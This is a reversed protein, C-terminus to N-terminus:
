RVIVCFGTPLVTGTLVQNGDETSEIALQLKHNHGYRSNTLAPIGEIVHAKVLTVKTGKPLKLIPETEVDLRADKAFLLPGAIVAEPGVQLLANAAVTLTPATNAECTDAADGNIQGNLVLEGESVTVSGAANFQGNFTWTGLGVKRLAVSSHVHDTSAGDQSSTSRFQGAFVGETNNAGVAWQAVLDGWHYVQAESDYAEILSFVESYGYFCFAGIM